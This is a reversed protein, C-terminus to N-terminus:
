LSVLVLGICTEHPCVAPDPARDPCSPHLLLAMPAVPAQITRHGPNKGLPTRPSPGPIGGEGGGGPRGLELDERWKVIDCHCVQQAGVCELLSGSGRWQCAHPASASFCASHSATASSARAPTPGVDRKLSLFSLGGVGVGEPFPHVSVWLANSDERVGEKAGMKKQGMASHGM